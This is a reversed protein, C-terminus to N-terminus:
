KNFCKDLVKKAVNQASLNRPQGGELIVCVSYQPNDYPAFGVFWWHSANGGDYQATGTKGAVKYSVNKFASGTGYQTVAAMYETLAQAEQASAITKLQSPEYEKVVKGNKNKIQTILYPKMMVGDNAVMSAIMLNHIPSIMTKGQGIATEQIESVGSNEDLSFRSSSSEIGINIYQNFMLKECLDRYKKQNLSLGISSFSANCSYAFADKLSEIGHSKGENCPITTGGTAYASGSCEYSYDAYSPNEMIYELATVIKFTSGPPYLGQTARNLLVSDDNDLELWKLYDSVALNPDYDPKSVMALIKGTTPEMVVVAGKNNGIADYAAKQIDPDLTTVVSNGVAKAGTVDDIIQEIFDDTQNLLDFNALGEIGTKANTLGVVQSFMKKYPYVRTENGDADIDTTAIVSGDAAYIDGRIVKNAQNDIRKNYPNNIVNEAEFVNFCVLYVIMLMFLGIFIFSLMNTEKNRLSDNKSVYIDSYTRKKSQKLKDQSQKKRKRQKKDM